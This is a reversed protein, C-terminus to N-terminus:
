LVRAIPVHASGIFRRPNARFAHDKTPIMQKLGRDRKILEEYVRAFIIGSVLTELERCIVVIRM